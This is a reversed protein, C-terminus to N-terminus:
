ASPRASSPKKSSGFGLADKILSGVLGGADYNGRSASASAVADAFDASLV